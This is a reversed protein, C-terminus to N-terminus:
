RGEKLRAASALLKFVCLFIEVSLAVRKRPSPVGFAGQLSSPSKCQARPSTGKSWM